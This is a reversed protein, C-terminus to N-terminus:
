DGEIENIGDNQGRKIIMEFLYKMFVSVDDQLAQLKGNTFSLMVPNYDGLENSPEITMIRGDFFTSFGVDEALRAITDFISEQSQDAEIHKDLEELLAKDADAKYKLKSYGLLWGINYQPYEKVIREAMTRTLRKGQCAKSITQPSTPIKKALENKRIGQEKILEELNIAYDPKIEKANEATKKSKRSM